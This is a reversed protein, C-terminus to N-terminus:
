RIVRINTERLSVFINDIMYKDNILDDNRGLINNEDDTITSSDISIIKPLIRVRTQWNSYTM